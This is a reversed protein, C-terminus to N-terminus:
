EIFTILLPNGHVAADFHEIRATGNKDGFVVTKVNKPLSLMTYGQTSYLVAKLMKKVNPRIEDEISKANRGTWGRATHEVAIATVTPLANEYYSKCRELLSAQLPQIKKKQEVEEGIRYVRAEITVQARVIFAEGCGGREDDCNILEPQNHGEHKANITYTSETGCLPCIIKIRKTM